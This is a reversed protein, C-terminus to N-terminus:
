VVLTYALEKGLGRVTSVSVAFPAYNSKSHPDGGFLVKLIASLLVFIRKFGTTLKLSLSSLHVSHACVPSEFMKHVGIMNSYTSTASSLSYSESSGLILFSSTITSIQQLCLQLKVYLM